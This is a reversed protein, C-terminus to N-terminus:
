ELYVKLYYNPYKLDLSYFVLLVAIADNKRDLIMLEKAHNAPITDFSYSIDDHFDSFEKGGATKFFQKGVSTCELRNIGIKLPLNLCNEITVIKAKIENEGIKFTTDRSLDENLCVAVSSDVCCSRNIEDVVVKKPIPTTGCSLIFILSFSPYILQFTNMEKM